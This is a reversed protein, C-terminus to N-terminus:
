LTGHKCRMDENPLSFNCHMPSAMIVYVKRAGSFPERGHAVALNDVVAVDGNKWDPYVTEADIAARIEILTSESILTGDGYKAMRPFIGVGLAAELALQVEEPLSSPHFLNAQNFWSEEGTYPHTMVGQVVQRTILQEEDLWEFDVSESRLKEEVIRREETQFVQQWTLDFGTNYRREYLVGKSKFEERTKNSLRQLVRRYDALTTQGGSDAAKQSWLWLYKPWTRRYSMENHLPIRQDAPYETSTFVRDNVKTRPTSPEEYDLIEPTASLVAERFAIVDEINFERFLLAGHNNLKKKCENWNNSLWSCLTIGSNPSYITYPLM